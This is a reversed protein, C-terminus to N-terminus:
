RRQLDWAMDNAIKSDLGGAAFRLIAENFIMAYVSNKPFMMSIGFKSLCQEAIHLTSKKGLESNFHPFSQLM